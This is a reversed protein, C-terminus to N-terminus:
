ASDDARIAADVRKDTASRGYATAVSHRGYMPSTRAPRTSAHVFVDRGKQESWEGARVEEREVKDFRFASSAIAAM